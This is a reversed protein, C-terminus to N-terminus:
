DTGGEPRNVVLFSKTGKTFSALIAVHGTQIPIYLKAGVPIRNGFRLVYRNAIRFSSNWSV